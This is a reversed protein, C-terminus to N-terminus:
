HRFDEFLKTYMDNVDNSCQEEMRLTAIEDESPVVLNLERMSEPLLEDGGTLVSQVGNSEDVAVKNEPDLMYNIFTKAQDVNEAGKPIALNDVYQTTGDTPFVFKLDPNATLAKFADNSWAMGIKQEGAALRDGVGDSSVVGVRSKYQSLLESAKQYANADTSCQDAGVARLSSNTIEVQDDLISTQGFAEAPTFFDKWSAPAESEPVVTSDYVYGTFGPIYPASYELEPDYYPNSFEEKINGANPLSSTDYKLLLNEDILQKIMYDSPMIIDYGSGGTSQLKAELDENSEFYDVTLKTETADEYAQIVDNPMYDAWTYVHLEGGKTEKYEGTSEVEEGTDDSGSVGGSCATTTVAVAAVTVLSAALRTFLISPKRTRQMTRMM